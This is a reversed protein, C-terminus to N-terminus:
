IILNKHSTHGSIDFHNGTADETSDAEVILSQLRDIEEQLGQVKAKSRKQQVIIKHQLVCCSQM